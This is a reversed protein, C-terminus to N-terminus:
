LQSCIINIFDRLVKANKFDSNYVFEIDISKDFIKESIFSEMDFPNPLNNINISYM